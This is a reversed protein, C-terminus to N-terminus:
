TTIDELPDGHFDLWIDHSEITYRLDPNLHIGDAEAAGEYTWRDFNKSILNYGSGREYESVTLEASIYAGAKALRAADKYIKKIDSIFSHIDKLTFDSDGSKLVASRTTDVRIGQKVTEYNLVFEYYKM